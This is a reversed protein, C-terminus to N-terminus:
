ASPVLFGQQVIRERLPKALRSASGQDLYIHVNAHRWLATAPIEPDPEHTLTNLIAEAKSVHPVPCFIRRSALIQSVTMSIAQRPVEALSGFWGERVQQQQCTADLSVVHYPRTAHFDAPPDNFAIHANEGIGIVAVDVPSQSIQDSLRQIVAEPSHDAQPDILHVSAPSVYKLFRERLYRRFSAPHEQPLGIYEDLHFMEVRDWDLPATVLAAITEFQSMGTSLVLRARGHDRIAAELAYAIDQAAVKGLAAPSDFISVNM